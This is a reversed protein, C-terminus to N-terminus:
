EDFPLFVSLYTRETRTRALDQRGPCGTLALALLSLGADKQELTAEATSPLYQTYMYRYKVLRSNM